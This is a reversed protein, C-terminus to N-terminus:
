LYTLTHPDGLLPGGDAPNYVVQVVWDPVLVPDPKPVIDVMMGLVKGGRPADLAEALISHMENLQSTSLSFSNRGPM